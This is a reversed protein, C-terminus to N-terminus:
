RHKEFDEDFTRKPSKDSLFGNIAQVIDGNVLSFPLDNFGRDQIIQSVWLIRELKKELTQAYTRDQKPTETDPVSQGV